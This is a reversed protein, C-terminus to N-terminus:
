RSRIMGMIDKTREVIPEAIAQAQGAGRGLIRDIEA